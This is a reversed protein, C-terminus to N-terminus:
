SDKQEPKNYEAWMLVKTDLMNLWKDVLPDYDAIFTREVGGQGYYILYRDEIVPKEQPYPRWNVITNLQGSKGSAIENLEMYAHYLLLNNEKILEMEGKDNVPVENNELIEEAQLQTLM